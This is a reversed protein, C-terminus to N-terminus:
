GNIQGHAQKTVNAFMLEVENKKLLLYQMLPAMGKGLDLNNRRFEKM